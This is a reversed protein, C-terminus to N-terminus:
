VRVIAACGPGYCHQRSVPVTAAAPLAAAGPRCVPSTPGGRVASRSHLLHVPCHPRRFLRTGANTVPPPLPMPRAFRREFQELSPACTVIQPRWRPSVPSLPSRARRSLPTRQPSRCAVRPDSRIQGTHPQRRSRRLPSRQPSEGSDANARPCRSMRNAQAPPLRWMPGIVSASVSATRAVTSRLRM